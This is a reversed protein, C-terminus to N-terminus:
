NQQSVLQTREHLFVLVKLVSSLDMRTQSKNLRPKYWTLCCLYGNAVFRHGGHGAKM